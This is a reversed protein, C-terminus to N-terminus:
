PKWQYDQFANGMLPALIYVQSLDPYFGLQLEM